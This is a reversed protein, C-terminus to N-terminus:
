GAAEKLAEETIASDDDVPLKPTLGQAEIEGHYARVAEEAGIDGEVVRRMMRVLAIPSEAQLIKRGFLAVRAGYEEAQGVLEFTDRTTGKAGGLIGVILHGPDFSALEEM